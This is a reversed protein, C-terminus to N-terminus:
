CIGLGTLVPIPSREVEPHSVENRYTVLWVTRSLRKGEMPHYFSYWGLATISHLQPTFAPIAQKCTFSHTAM